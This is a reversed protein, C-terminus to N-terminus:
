RPDNVFGVFLIAQTPMDRIVFYFPHDVNVKVVDVPTSTLEIDVATAAAAETGAEHVSVFAQHYVDGIVLGGGEVMGSFDAQTFADKMNLAMLADKLQFKAEFTFKPLSLEVSKPTLAKIAEDFTAGLTGADVGTSRPMLVVMSLEGGDYPLEVAQYGEAEAYGFTQTGHMMPVQATSDATLAFSGQQTTEKKFPFKWAANFYVANTLVLRTDSTISGQPMLDKIRQETQDAVWTNIIQRSPEPRASFDTVFLGADYQAALVDLYSSKIAFDKQGWLKNVVHLRFKGGDSGGAGEGRKELARDLGNFAAHLDPSALTFHLAEAMQAATQGRAGEYVMGLATSISHPSYFVNGGKAVHPYLDFGFAANDRTLDTIKPNVPETRPTSSRLEQVNAPVGGNDTEQNCGWAILFLLALPFLTLSPRRDSM